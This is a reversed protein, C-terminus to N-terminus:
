AAPPPTQRGTVSLPRVRVWYPRANGGWSRLGLGDLRRRDADDEVVDAYGQVVVSWGAETAADYADAEYTVPYGLGASALKSGEATRFVVSHGDIAHNVPLIVVEGASLFGIRGVPVSALKDLCDAFALVRLGAHDTQASPQHQAAM